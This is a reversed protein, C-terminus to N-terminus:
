SPIHYYTKYYQIDTGLQPRLKDMLGDRNPLPHKHGIGYGQYIGKIGVLTKKEGPIYLKKTYKAPMDRWIRIDLFPCSDDLMPKLAPFADARVLTQCLSAHQANDHQHWRRTRVNYYFAHGEGIVSYDEFRKEAVELYDPSYWDDDEIFAVADGNIPISESMLKRLKGILSGKGRTDDYRYHRQGMTCKAPTVGDDLVIWEFYSVTQRAMWKECLAFAEPRDCTPTILTFKM